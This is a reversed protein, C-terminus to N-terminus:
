PRLIFLSLWARCANRQFDVSAMILRGTINVLRVMPPHEERWKALDIVQAEM